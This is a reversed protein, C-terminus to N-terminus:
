DSGIKKDNRWQAMILDVASKAQALDWGAQGRLFKIAGLTDGFQLYERKMMELDEPRIQHLLDSPSHQEDRSVQSNPMITDELNAGATENLAWQRMVSLDVGSLDADRLNSSSIWADRLNSQTFTAAQFNAGKIYAESLDVGVLISRQFIADEVTLKNLNAFSLDAGSLDTEEWFTAANIVAGRLDANRFSTSSCFIESLNAGVLIADSFDVGHFHCARFNIGSLDQFKPVKLNDVWRIAPFDREGAAYREFLEQIDM